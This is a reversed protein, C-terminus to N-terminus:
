RDRRRRGGPFARSGDVSQTVFGDRTLSPDLGERRLRGLQDLNRSAQTFRCLFPQSAVLRQALEGALVAHAELM